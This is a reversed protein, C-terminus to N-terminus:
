ARFGPCSPFGDPSAFSPAGTRLVTVLMPAPDTGATVFRRGDFAV